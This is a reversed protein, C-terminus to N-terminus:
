RAEFQTGTSEILAKKWWDPYEPNLVRVPIDESDKTHKFVGNEEVKINGDIYKVMLFEFLNEWCTMTNAVNKLTIATLADRCADPNSRCLDAFKADNALVQARYENELRLQEKRVDQQMVDYRLYTFNRVKNFLWFGSTKSYKLLSGNGREISEPVRKIGCYIPNFVTGGADDLGFWFVGGVPDPLWGRCQGVFVFGTQQTATCREHLYSKGEYKWNMPRWRYPCAFPGAGFDKSMDLETGEFHDRMAEQVDQLTVKRSPKIWLPMRSSLDYGKAYNWYKEMGSAVRNFFTWVRAECARAAGFDVPNFIDSFSFDKDAGKFYGKEKSFSILDSVYVTTVEPNYLKKFQKDTISTKGDALPFTQIRAQNAHGSVYGDPIRRAVWLAGKNVNEQRKTKKNYKLEVGRGIMELIWVEKPDAISFSEGESAYGYDRVLTAMVEIAERATRARQLTTYILTGYDVIATTDVLHELGGYTTEGILLQHENMNGVVQYTREAQPIQGMYRNTDWEYVKMLTGKPYVAAPWFYLEGYLYHSDAAYSVMSSGDASAGPTVLFNTCARSSALGLLLMGVTAALIFFAKRM